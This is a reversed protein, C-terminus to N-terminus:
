RIGPLGLAAVLEDVTTSSPVVDGVLALWAPPVPEDGARDFVGLTVADWVRRLQDIEDSALLRQEWGAGETTTAYRRGEAALWQVLRHTAGPNALLASRAEVLMSILEDLEPRASAVGPQGALGHTLLRALASRSRELEAILDTVARADASM